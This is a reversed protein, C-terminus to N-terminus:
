YRRSNKGAPIEFRHLGYYLQRECPFLPRFYACGAPRALSIRFTTKRAGRLACLRTSPLTRSGGSKDLGAFPNALLEDLGLPQAKEEFSRGFYELQMLANLRM